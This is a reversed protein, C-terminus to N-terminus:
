LHRSTSYFSNTADVKHLLRKSLGMSRVGRRHFLPRKQSLDIGWM